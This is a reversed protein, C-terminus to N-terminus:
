LSVGGTIIALAESDPIDDAASAAEMYTYPADEVDIAADYEVGTEVQRVMVGADSYTRYLKVGDGRTKYFERIIM